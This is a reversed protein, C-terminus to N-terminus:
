RRSSDSRRRRTPTAEGGRQSRMWRQFLEDGVIRGMKVLQFSSSNCGWGGVYGMLTEKTRVEDFFVIAPAAARARKFVAALARESEGLWKSLLEPGQCM